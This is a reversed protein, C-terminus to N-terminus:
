NRRCWVAKPPMGELNAEVIHLAPLTLRLLRIVFSRTV